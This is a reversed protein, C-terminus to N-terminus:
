RQEEYYDKDKKGEYKVELGDEVKIDSWTHGTRFSVQSYSSRRKTKYEQM